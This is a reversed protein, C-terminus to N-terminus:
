LKSQGIKLCVRIFKVRTLHLSEANIVANLSLDNQNIIKFDTSGHEM